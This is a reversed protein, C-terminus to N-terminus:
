RLRQKGVEMHAADGEITYTSTAWFGMYTTIATEESFNVLVNAGQREALAEDYVSRVEDATPITGWGMIGQKTISATVPGLIKVNSNPYVFQTNLQQAGFKATCGIALGVCAMLSLSWLLRAKRM